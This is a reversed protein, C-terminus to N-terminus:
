IVYIGIRSGNSKTHTAVHDITDPLTLHLVKEIVDWTAGMQVDLIQRAEELTLQATGATRKLAEAGGARQGDAFCLPEASSSLSMHLLAASLLVAVVYSTITFGVCDQTRALRIPLAVPFAASFLACALFTRRLVQHHRTGSRTALHRDMHQVLSTNRTTFYPSAWRFWLITLLFTPFVSVLAQQYAQAAARLVM